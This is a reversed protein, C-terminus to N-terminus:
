YFPNPTQRHTDTHTQTHRHTDTHTQTHRHTDTHTQTHLAAVFLTGLYSGESIWWGWDKVAAYKCALLSAVGNYPRHKLWSWIQQLETYTHNFPDGILGKSVPKIHLVALVQRQENDLESISHSTATERDLGPQQDRWWLWVSDDSATFNHHRKM